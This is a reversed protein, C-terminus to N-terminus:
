MSESSDDSVALRHYDSVLQDMLTPSTKGKEMLLDVLTDFMSDDDMYPMLQDVSKSYDAASINVGNLRDDSREFDALLLLHSKRSLLGSSQLIKSRTRDWEVDKIICPTCLNSGGNFRRYFITKKTKAM